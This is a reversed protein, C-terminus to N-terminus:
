EKNLTGKNVFNGTIINFVGNVTLQAGTNNLVGDPNNINVNHMTNLGTIIQQATGDFNILGQTTSIGGGTSAFLNGHINFVAAATQSLTSTGLITLNNIGATYNGVQPMNAPNNPVEANNTDTPVRFWNWNGNTNWDSTEIGTWVYNWYRNYANDAQTELDALNDGAIYAVAFKFSDTPALNIPGVGLVSGVDGPATTALRTQTGAIMSYKEDGTFGDYLNISGNSGNNNTAYYNADQMTLLRMGGFISQPELSRAYILKRATDTNVVNINSQLIEWDAFLGAALDNIAVGNPKICYEVIVFKENQGAWGFARHRVTVNVRNGGAPADDFVGEVDKDSTFFVPRKRVPSVVGWDADYNPLNGYVNDMVKAPSGPTGVLLGSAYFLPGSDKYSFGAGPTAYPNTFGVSGNSPITLVVSGVNIDIRDRNVTDAMWELTSYGGDAVITFKFELPTNVPATNLVVVRFPNANNNLTDGQNLTGLALTSNLITVHPSSCSLTVSANTAPRLYNRYTGSLRLTDGPLFNGDNNDSINKNWLAISPSATDTLMKFIDLRGKGMLNAFPLNQPVSYISADATVKIQQAIKLASWGPLYSRLLGAAGSVMPASASTGGSTTYTNPNYTNYVGSGYAVLDVNAGFSSTNSKQNSQQLGGINLVYDYSAPYYPTQSNANGASAVVVADMNIVAYTIVDRGFNCPFISGWSCNIVKCGHEAAYVIGEYGRIYNGVNDDIRVPLFKCKFGIGAVGIGNDTKAGAIGAVFTGHSDQADYVNDNNAWINWGLINDIYGDGDDDIGNRPDNYNYKINPKLDVHNTDVGSDTIGIVMNTDGKWVDWALDAKLQGIYWQSNLSADNVTYLKQQIFNPEAYEFLGLSTLSSIVKRLPLQATYKLRYVLTIDAPKEAQLYLKKEPQKANPFIKEIGASGISSLYQNFGTHNIGNATCLSRYSDKVKIIITNPECDADSFSPLPLLATQAQATAGSFVVFLALLATYFKRM